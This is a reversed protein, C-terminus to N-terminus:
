HTTLTAQAMEASCSCYEPFTVTVYVPFLSSLRCNTVKMLLSNVHYWLWPESGGPLDEILWDILKNNLTCDWWQFPRLVSRSLSMSANIFGDFHGWFVEPYYRWYMSLASHCPCFLTSQFLSLFVLQLLFQPCCTVNWLAKLISM